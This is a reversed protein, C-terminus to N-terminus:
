GNAAKTGYLATAADKM